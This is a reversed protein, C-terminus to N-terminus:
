IRLVCYQDAQHNSAGTTHQDSPNLTDFEHTDADLKIKKAPRELQNDDILTVDHDHYDFKRKNHEVGTTAATLSHDKQNAVAQSESVTTVNVKNVERIYDPTTRISVNKVPLASRKNRTPVSTEATEAQRQEKISMDINGLIILEEIEDSTVGSLKPATKKSAVPVIKSDGLSPTDEVSLYPDRKSWRISKHMKDPMFSLGKWTRFQKILMNRTEGIVTVPLKGEHKFKTIADLLELERFEQRLAGSCGGTIVRVDLGNIIITGAASASRSLATYYAQHTDLGLLHVPNDPRTKGQSAYATMAFNPLLEVQERLILIKDGNPLMSTIANKRPYVPVVNTPLGKINIDSPPNKLKVFVTDLCNQGKSGAKSQWSVVYGEQGRTMCLETAYNYRIIVPLGVCLSLKGAIHKDTFSPAQDWLLSQVSDSITELIIKGRKKGQEPVRIRESDDSYFDVLTQGTEDAFRQCGIKNIADKVLNTGTIIAENRFRDDCVSPLGEVNYSIRSLLFSIDDQTCAKYRMNDLATRLRSDEDSQSRQRMNQRLIVVTTVQHWLSKGMAEEQSVADTSHTGITRSYLSKNEGGIAPPLQAFDGCFIMNLGGFPKSCQDERVKKLQADIRHLDAASLMSVEDFFVYDVGKLRAKIVGPRVDSHENIGFVSHYTGGGLLAAASGTPAVVIFRHAEGREAFFHSLAKLVQSKGTGGMGGIYMNLQEHDYALAHNAIIRFAREQEENLTYQEISINVLPTMYPGPAQFDKYFYSKDVIRVRNPIFTNRNTDTKSGEQNQDGTKSADLSASSKPGDINEKKKDVVAQKSEEVAEQWKLGTQNVCPNVMEPTPAYGTGKSTSWGLDNMVSTANKISTLKKAYQKGERLLHIDDHKTDYNNIPPYIDSEPLEIGEHITPDWSGLISPVAGKKLQARYDDRADMCEFKINFNIMLRREHQTFEHKDFADKWSTDNPTRLDRGTRWPKFFSLMASSYYEIDGKDSRPLSGVFNVVRQENNKIFRMGHSSYQAHETTFRYTFKDMNKLRKLRIGDNETTDEPMKHRDDENDTDSNDADTMDGHDNECVSHETDPPDLPDENVGFLCEEADQTASRKGTLISVRKYCRIYEYLSVDSLELPRHLYDQIWSCAIVKEKSRLIIVKEDAESDATQEFPRRAEAVYTRWYFVVFEHSTYHDPNKLLYMCIMPAGLEAKASLQNVVKTMFARAKDQMRNSGNLIEGHKQFTGRVTDFITHTKLSTKTIYDSVYMIVAKIATGSALSTVDTNTGTLYSLVPTVTNIWKEKKKLIVVGTDDIHTKDVIARPFRAKCKNWKNDMCGPASTNNKRSGDKKYGRTCDHVNAGLLIEDVTEFYNSEWASYASCTKCNLRQSDEQQTSNNLSHRKCALPPATPLALSPEIHGDVKEKASVMSEVDERTGTMFEGVSCSELYKILNNAWESTRDSCLKDRVEQPSPTGKIWLLLHLHLTLRGQQEVTGYYGTVDGYVGRHEAKYGLIDTIFSCAMFHFFRAAAVPNQCILRARESSTLPIPDFKHDSNALYICLPHRNDSPSITIYWYPAGLVAVMSWIENRMHKKSLLSGHMMGSVADLDNIVQFCQMEDPTNVTNATIFNGAEMEKTMEDLVSWNVTMLRSTIEKFRTKKTQLFASTNNAKIQEHCFAVFPFSDDTQFRKDHYMLLHRKHETESIVGTSTSGIGGLGYPFLWPFMQTYLSPNNYISQIKDSHGVALVGGLNNFHRLAAAKIQSPLMNNLTESTLGHVTFPCPGDETGDDEDRDFVSTGEPVKNTASVRYEVSVYPEDEPYQELNERSIEIGYYGIHNLILWELAELVVNRRILLPTRKFDEENPKCPGTFLIALVDDMDERPPPLKNYVKPIPNEFAIVNAKMKRMGSAVKVYACTHRIRAVLLREAFRLRKLQVPVQGIWLGNALALRPVKGERICRRCTDCIRDCSHDIVPGSLEKAACTDSTREKRTVGVAILTNLHNKVSKLKSLKAIPHLEGCVACGAEKFASPLLRKCASAIVKDRMASDFPKPPFIDYNVADSTDVTPPSAKKALRHNEVRAQNLKKTSIVKMFVTVYTDCKECHHSALMDTLSNKSTKTKVPVGHMIAVSRSATLTLLRVLETLQPQIFVHDTANYNNM